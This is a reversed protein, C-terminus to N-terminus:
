ARAIINIDDKCTPSYELGGKYDKCVQPHEETDRISCGEGPVLAKCRFFGAEKLFEKPSGSDSFIYPNIKKAQRKSIRVWYKLISQSGRLTIKGAKAALWPQLPIHIAECCKTCRVNNATVCSM